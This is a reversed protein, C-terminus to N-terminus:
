VDKGQRRMEKRLLGASVSVLADLSGYYPDTTPVRPLENLLLRGIAAFVQEGTLTTTDDGPEILRLM